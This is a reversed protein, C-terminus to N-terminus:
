VPINVDDTGVSESTAYPKMTAIIHKVVGVFSWEVSRVFYSQMATAKGCSITPLM